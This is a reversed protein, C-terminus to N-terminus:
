QPTKKSRKVEKGDNGAAGGTSGMELVARQIMGILTQGADASSGVTGYLHWGRKGRRRLQKATPQVLIQIRRPKTLVAYRNERELADVFNTRNKVKKKM